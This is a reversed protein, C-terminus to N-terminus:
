QVCNYKHAVPKVLEESGLSDIVLLCRERRLVEGVKKRFKPTFLKGLIVGVIVGPVFRWVWYNNPMLLPHYLLAFQSQVAGRESQSRHKSKKVM